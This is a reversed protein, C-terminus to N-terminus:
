IGPWGDDIVEGLWEVFIEDIKEEDEAQLVAFPRAPIPNAGGGGEYGSQHIIGYWVDSPLGALVAEDSSFQWLDERGMTGELAGTKVLIGSGGGLRNRIEETAESLPAWAPRGAVRFNTQISPIVVERVAKRLPDEFESVKDAIADFYSNVLVVSPLFSVLTPHIPGPSISTVM